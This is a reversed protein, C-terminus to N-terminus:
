ADETAALDVRDLATLGAQAVTLAPDLLQGGRYVRPVGRHDVRVATAEELNEALQRITDTDKCLILMGLSDGRVFGYLPVLKGSM